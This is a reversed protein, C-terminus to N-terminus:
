EGVKNFKNKNLKQPQKLAVYYLGIQKAYEENKIIKGILRSM